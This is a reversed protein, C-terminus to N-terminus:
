ISLFLTLFNNIINNNKILVATPKEDTTKKISCGDEVQHNLMQNSKEFKKTFWDSKRVFPFLSLISLSM